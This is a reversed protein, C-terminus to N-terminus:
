IIDVIAADSSDFMHLNEHWNTCGVRRYCDENPLWELLLFGNDNLQLCYCRDLTSPIEYDIQIVIPNSADYSVLIRSNILDFAYANDKMSPFLCYGYELKVEDKPWEVLTLGPLLSKLRAKLRLRAPMQIAGFDDKGNRQISESVWEMTSRGHRRPFKIGIASPVSIWSGM